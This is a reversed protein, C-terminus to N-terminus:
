QTKYTVVVSGAHSNSVVLNQTIPIRVPYAIIGDGPAALTIVPTVAINTSAAVVVPATYLATNTVSNTTGGSTLWTLVVNTSYTTWNTFATNTRVINTNVCDYFYWISNTGAPALTINDVTIGGGSILVFCNAGTQNSTAPSAPTAAIACSLSAALGLIILLKKM